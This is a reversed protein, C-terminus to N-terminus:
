RCATSPCTTCGAAYVLHGRRRRQGLTLDTASATQRADHSCASTALTAFSLASVSVLHRITSPM